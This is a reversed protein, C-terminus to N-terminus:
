AAAPLQDFLFGVTAMELKVIVGFEPPTEPRQFHWCSSAEANGQVDLPLVFFALLPAHEVPM